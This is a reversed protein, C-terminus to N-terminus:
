RQKPPPDEKAPGTPRAEERHRERIQELHINTPGSEVVCKPEPDKYQRGKDDSKRLHKTRSPEACRM